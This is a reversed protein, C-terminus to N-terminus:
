ILKHNKTKKNRKLAPSYYIVIVCKCSDDPRMGSKYIMLYIVKCSLSIGRGRVRYGEGRPSPSKSWDVYFM